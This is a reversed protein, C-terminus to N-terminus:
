KRIEDRLERVENRLERVQRMLEHMAESVHHDKNRHLEREIDEASERIEEAEEDFGAMELHKAAAHLHEVREIDEHAHEQDGHGHEDDGHEDDGRQHEHMQEISDELIAITNRVRKLEPGDSNRRELVAQEHHLRALASMFEALNRDAVSHDDHVHDDHGHHRDVEGHGGHSEDKAAAHRQGGGEANGHDSHAGETMEVIRDGTEETTKSRRDQPKDALLPAILLLCAAVALLFLRQIM